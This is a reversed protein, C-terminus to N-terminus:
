KKLVSQPFRNIIYDGKVKQEPISDVMSVFLPIDFVDGIQKLLNVEYITWM